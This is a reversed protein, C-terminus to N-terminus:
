LLARMAVDRQTGVTHLARSRRARKQEEFNAESSIRVAVDARFKYFSSREIRWGVSISCSEYGRRYGWDIWFSEPADDLVKWDPLGGGVCM